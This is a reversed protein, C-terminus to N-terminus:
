DSTSKSKEAVKNFREIFPGRIDPSVETLLFNRIQEAVWEANQPDIKAVSELLSIRVKFKGAYPDEQSHESILETCLYAIEATGGDWTAIIKRSCIPVALGAFNRQLDRTTATCSQPRLESSCRVLVHPFWRTEKGDTFKAVLLNWDAIQAIRSPPDPIGRKIAIGLADILLRLTTDKRYGYGQSAVIAKEFCNDALETYGRKAALEALNLLESTREHTELARIVIRDYEDELLPKWDVRVGVVGTLAEVLLNNCIPINNGICKNRLDDALQKVDGGSSNCKSFVHHLLEPLDHKITMQVNLSDQIAEERESFSNFCPMRLPIEM